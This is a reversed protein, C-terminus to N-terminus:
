WKEEDRIAGEAKLRESKGKERESKCLIYVRFWDEERVVRRTEDRYLNM